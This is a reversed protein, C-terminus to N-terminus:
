DTYVNYATRKSGFSALGCSLKPIQANIRKINSLSREADNVMSQSAAKEYVDALVISLNSTMASEYGAPFNYATVIDAFATFPKTSFLHLTYAADPLYNFIIAGNPVSPHYYLKKPLSQVNKLVIRNYQEQIIVELLYDISNTSDRLYAQEVTVPRVTNIDATSEGISYEGDGATLAYIDETRAYIMLRETSWMDLMLNLNARCREMTPNDPTEDPDIVKARVLANTIITQADL